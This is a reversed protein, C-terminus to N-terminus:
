SAPADPQHETLLGDSVAIPKQGAALQANTTRRHNLAATACANVIGVITVLATLMGADSTGYRGHRYCITCCILLLVFAIVANMALYVWKTSSPGGEFALGKLITWWRTAKLKDLLENM